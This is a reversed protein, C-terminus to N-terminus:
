RTRENLKENIESLFKKKIEDMSSGVIIDKLIKKPPEPHLVFKFHVGTKVKGIIEDKYYVIVPNIIKLNEDFPSYFFDPEKFLDEKKTFMSTFYGIM